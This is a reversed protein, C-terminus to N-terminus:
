LKAATLADYARFSLRTAKIAFDPEMNDLEALEKVIAAYEGVSEPNIGKGYTNNVATASAATDFMQRRLLKDTASIEPNFAWEGKTMNQFIEQQTM